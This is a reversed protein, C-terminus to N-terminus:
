RWASVTPLARGKAVVSWVEGSAQDVGDAEFAVAQGVTGALKAGPDTRFVLRGRGVVTREQVAPRTSIDM